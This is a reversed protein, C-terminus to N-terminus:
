FDQLKCIAGTKIQGHREGGDTDTQIDEERERDRDSESQRM